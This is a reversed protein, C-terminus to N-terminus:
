VMKNKIKRNTSWQTPQRHLIQKSLRDKVMQIM